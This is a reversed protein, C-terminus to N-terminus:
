AILWFLPLTSIEANMFCSYMNLDAVKMRLLINIRVKQQSKETAFYITIRLKYARLFIYAAVNNKKINVARLFTLPLLREAKCDYFIVLRYKNRTLPDAVTSLLCDM